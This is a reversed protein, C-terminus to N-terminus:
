LEIRCVDLLCFVARCTPCPAKGGLWTDPRQQDQRSAFWKGMCQLCWMPRCFCQVCQLNVAAALNENGGGMDDCHKQLKVNSLAQMCGICTELEVHPPLMFTPNFQVTATFADLFQDSLSQRIMINRTNEIQAQLKSRLDSYELSNLRIQFNQLHPEARKVTINLFQAATSNEYSLPHEETNDLLLQIDNQHAIYVHYTTTKLIWSDTVYLRRGPLGSTFKDIRRFEVNIASAVDRWSGGHSLQELQRAIPHDNWNNHKWYLAMMGVTAPLLVCLTFLLYCARPLDWIMFLSLDPAILALGIYYGLPILSHVFATVATRRIHYDIFKMEESGLYATVSMVFASM